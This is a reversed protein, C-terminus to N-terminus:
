IKGYFERSCIKNHSQLEDISMFGTNCVHCWARFPPPIKFDPDCTNIIKGLINFLIEDDCMKETWGPAFSSERLIYFDDSHKNALKNTNAAM